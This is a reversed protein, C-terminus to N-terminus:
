DGTSYCLQVVAHWTWIGAASPAIEEWEGADVHYRWLDNLCGTRPQVEQRMYGGFVYLWRGSMCSAHYHRGQPIETAAVRLHAIPFVRAALGCGARGLRQITARYVRMVPRQAEVFYAFLVVVCHNTGPHPLGALPMYRRIRCHSGPSV